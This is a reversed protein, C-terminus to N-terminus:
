AALVPLLLAGLRRFRCMRTPAIPSFVNIFKQKSSVRNKAFGRFVLIVIYIVEPFHRDEM